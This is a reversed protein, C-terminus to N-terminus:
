YTIDVFPPFQRFQHYRSSGARHAPLPDVFLLYRRSKRRPRQRAHVNNKSFTLLPCVQDAGSDLSLQLASLPRFARLVFDVSKGRTRGTVERNRGVYPTTVRRSFRAFYGAFASNSSKLILAALRPPPEATGINKLLNAPM